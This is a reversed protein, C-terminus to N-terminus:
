SAVASDSVAVWLGFRADGCTACYPRTTRRRARWCRSKLVPPRRMRCARYKMRWSASLWKVGVSKRCIRPRMSRSAHCGVHDLAGGPLPPSSSRSDFCCLHRPVARDSPVLSGLALGRVTWADRAHSGEVQQFPRVLQAVPHDAREVGRPLPSTPGYRLDRNSDNISGAEFRSIM